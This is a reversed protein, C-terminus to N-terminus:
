YDLVQEIVAEGEFVKRIARIGSYNTYSRININDGEIKRIAAV